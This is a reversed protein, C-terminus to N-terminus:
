CAIGQASFLSNFAEKEAANAANHMGDAKDGEGFPSVEM